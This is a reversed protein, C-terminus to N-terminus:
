EVVAIITVVVVAVVIYVISVVVVNDVDSNDTRMASILWQHVNQVVNWVFFVEFETM